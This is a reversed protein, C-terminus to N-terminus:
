EAKQELQRYWSITLAVVQNYNKVGAEINNSKLYVNNARTQVKRMTINQLGLHYKRQFQMDTIVRKNIKRIYDPYVKMRAADALFYGLVYEYGSYQIRRDGSTACVVFAILNAESESAIGFQHAKEHALIFPYEMPLVKSNLHVENFFPGFYGNIGTKSFFSSFLMTKTRRKGNPYNIGLGSSNRQYSEEIKKDIASIDSDSILIYNSNTHVIITDLISLFVSEETKPKEWGTRTEIAPRFYNFGWTLYFLSYLVAVFQTLRLGYWWLKIKRFIVLGLGTIILSITIIWFIDWISFPVLGSVSSFIKAILPYVGLSYYKEVFGPNRVALTKALFFLLAMAIPWFISIIRRIVSSKKRNNKM